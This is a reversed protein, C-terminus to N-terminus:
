ALFYEFNCGLMAGRFNGLLLLFVGVYYIFINRVKIHVSPNVWTPSKAFCQGKKECFTQEM